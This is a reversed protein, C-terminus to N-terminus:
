EDEETLTNQFCKCEDCIKIAENKDGSKLNRLVCKWEFSKLWTGVNSWMCNTLNYPNGENRNLSDNTKM